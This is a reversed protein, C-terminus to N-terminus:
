AEGNLNNFYKPNHIEFVVYRGFQSSRTALAEEGNKTFLYGRGYKDYYTWGLRAMEDFFTSEAERSRMMYILRRKSVRVMPRDERELRYAGILVEALRLEVYAWCIAALSLAIVTWTIWAHCKRKNKM